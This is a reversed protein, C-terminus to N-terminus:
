KWGNLKEWNCYIFYKGKDREFRILNIKYEVTKQIGYYLTKEGSVFGWAPFMCDRYPFLQALSVSVVM